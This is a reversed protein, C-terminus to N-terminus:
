CFSKCYILLKIAINFCNPLYPQTVTELISVKTLAVQRWYLISFEFHKIKPRSRFMAEIRSATWAQDYSWSIKHMLM